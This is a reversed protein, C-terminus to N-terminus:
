STPRGPPPKRGLLRRFLSRAKDRVAGGAIALFPAPDGLRLYAGRVPPRISWLWRLLSLEGRRRYYDASLRDASFHVWKRRGPRGPEGLSPLGALDRYAVWPIEVGNIDALANQWDTRAVTPEIMWFSGDRPDKKYEMSCLGRFGIRTFFDTTLREMEPSSVPEASATGGCHPLWQRLKRGSFSARRSGDQGYYQLCFHIADDGGPVYEQLLVRAEHARYRGYISACEEASGVVYAKKAGASFWAPSKVQPKLICPFRLRSSAASLDEESAVYETRPVPLKMEAALSDFGRKDLLREVLAPDPMGIRYLERLRPLDGAIATVSDDTIPFLVPKEPLGRGRELLLPVLSEAGGEQRWVEAVHRSREEPCPRHSVAIVRVGHRGLARAVGLGNLNAAALVAPVPLPSAM